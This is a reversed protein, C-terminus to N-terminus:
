TVFQFITYCGSQICYSVQNRGIYFVRLNPVKLALVILSDLVYLNSDSLDLATLEPVIEMVIDLLVMMNSPRFLALGCSERFESFVM